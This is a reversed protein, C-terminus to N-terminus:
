VLGSAAGSRTLWYPPTIGSSLRSWLEGVAREVPELETTRLFDARWRLGRGHPPDAGLRRSGQSEM